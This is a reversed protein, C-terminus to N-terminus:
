DKKEQEAVLDGGEKGVTLKQIELKLWEPLLLKHARDCPLPETTGAKVIGRWSVIAHDLCRAIFEHVDFTEARQHKQFDQKTAKKRFAKETDDDVIRLIIEVDPTPNFPFTQDATAVQIFSGSM